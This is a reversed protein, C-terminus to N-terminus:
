NEISKFATWGFMDKAMMTATDGPMHIANSMQSLSGATHWLRAPNAVMNVKPSADFAVTLTSSGFAAEKETVVNNAGSFGGLHYRFNGSNAQPSNGEAKLMIYGNNWSWFMNNTVALAGEQAGSVNRLSDVGHTFRIAKYDGSPVKTLKIENTLGLEILHYSEDEVWWSDDAKQLQINSIYYKIKTFTMTDQTKPHVLEVNLDFPNSDMGWVHDFVLTVPGEQPDPDDTDKCSSFGLLLAFAIAFALINRKKM